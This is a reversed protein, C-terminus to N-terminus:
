CFKQPLGAMNYSFYHAYNNTSKDGKLISTVTKRNYPLTNCLNRLSRWESIQGTTKDKTLVSYSRKRSIYSDTDYAYQTNSRNDTWYLNGVQNNAKNNDRHGVQPLGSPNDIFAQAVLRHIYLYKYKDKIKIKCMSYGTNVKWICTPKLSESHRVQGSSSILYKSNPIEAWM